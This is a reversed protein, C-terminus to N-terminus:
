LEGDWGPCDMNLTARQAEELTDFPGSVQDLAWDINQHVEYRCPCNSDVKVECGTIKKYFVSAYVTYALGSLAICAALTVWVATWWNEWRLKREYKNARLNAQEIKRDSEYRVTSLERELHEIREPLSSIDEKDSMNTRDAM